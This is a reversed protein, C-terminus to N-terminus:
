RAVFAALDGVEGVEDSAGAHDGVEFGPNRPPLSTALVGSDAWLAIDRTCASLASKWGLGLWGRGSEASDYDAHRPRDLDRSDVLPRGRALASLM